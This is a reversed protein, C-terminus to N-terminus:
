ALKANAIQEFANLRASSQPMRGSPVLGQLRISGLASVGPLPEKRAFFQSTEAGNQTLRFGGAQRPLHVFRFGVGLVQRALFM